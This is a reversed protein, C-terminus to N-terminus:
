LSNDSDSEQGYEIYQKIWKINTAEFIRPKGHFCVLNCDKPLTDLYQNLKPKFDFITSTLQQWYLDATCVKRIFADMRNGKPSTFAQYVKKTKECDKPFWVLGTAIQNRQWFDELTIYKTEDVILNFINEITSTVATDLDVYLFPKYQEMSPSYLQIRSWTGLTYVTNLPILEVNGMDYHQSAKNWLCIIRPPISSQWKGRIHRVILQVDRFGFDKSEKLVLVITRNQM